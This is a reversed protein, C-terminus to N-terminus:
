GIHIFEKEGVLVFYPTDYRDNSESQFTKYTFNCSMVGSKVPHIWLVDGVQYDDVKLTDEIDDGPYCVIDDDFGNLCKMIGSQLCQRGDVTTVNYVQFDSGRNPFYMVTEGGETKWDCDGESVIDRVLHQFATAM